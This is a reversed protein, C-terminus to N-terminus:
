EPQDDMVYTELRSREFANAAKAAAAELPDQSACYKEILKESHKRDNDQVSVYKLVGLTLIGQIRWARDKDHAIINFVDGPAPKAVQLIKLKTTLAAGFTDLAIAYERVVAIQKDDRGRWPLYVDNALRSLALLQMDQGLWTVCAVAREQVMHWGLTIMHKLVQEAQAYEKRSAYDGALAELCKGVNMLECGPRYYWGVTFERPTHTFVFDMKAKAAGAAVFQDIQKLVALDVDALKPAEKYRTPMKDIIGKCLERNSRYVRAAQAYDDAANGAGSPLSGLVQTPPVTTDKFDLAGFGTTASTPPSPADDFMSGIIMYAVIAGVGLVLVGAVIWGAKNGM